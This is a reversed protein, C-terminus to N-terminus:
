IKATKKDYYYGYGYGYSHESKADNLVLVPNTFKGQEAIQNILKLHSPKTYYYRVVYALMDAFPSLAFADAVLGIPASDIIIHDFKSRLENFLDELRPSNMIQIPNDPLKGAGILFINPNQESLTLIDRTLYNEDSLYESIGPKESNIGLQKLVSPKRLDFELIVTKKGSLGITRALNISFFTKGEGGISSTTLIVQNPKRMSAFKMNTWVLNVQEGILSKHQYNGLYLNKRKEHSIEGMVPVQSLTEVENKQGIKGFFYDNLYIMGFPIGLGFIFAFVMILKKLPRAPFLGAMPPDIVRANSVSTAALSLVSEERKKMLYQYNEQKTAQQRTISLLEREIQPVRNAREEIKLANEELSKKAIQISRKSSQINELLDSRLSSLQEDLNKVLPNDSTTGNLLRQRERQLENYKKVLDSLAVDEILLSGQVMKSLNNSSTLNEELNNLVEISIDYESLKQKATSSNELYLQSEASLDSISNENKYTEVAQEIEALESTLKEMQEDIFDLTNAATSNINKLAESNYVEVLAKLFEEGKEPISALLTLSIVTSLKNTPEANISESYEFAMERLDNYTFFIIEPYSGQQDEKLHITFEGFFNSIKEGFSHRSKVGEEMELEFSQDDVIELRVMGTFKKAQKNLKSYSISVPVADGYLEKYRKFGNEVYFTNYLNLEELAKRILSISTLVEVENEVINTSQYGDLDDLVTNNSFGKKAEESNNIMLTSTIEYQNPTYYIYTLAAGCCVIVGALFIYWHRLYKKMYFELPVSSSKKLDIEQNLLDKIDM